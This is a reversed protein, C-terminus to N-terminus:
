VEGGGLPTALVPAIALTGNPHESSIHTPAEELSVVLGNREACTMGDLPSPDTDHRPNDLLESALVVGSEQYALVNARNYAVQAETRGVTLSRGKYTEEFLGELRAALEDMTVGEDLAAGVVRRVDERTTDAIGKIRGALDALVRRVNPNALDWAIGLQLQASANAFATEGALVYFRQLVKRLAEEEADWDIDDIDRAEAVLRDRDSRPMAVMDRETLADFRDASQAVAAVVRAGQQRWFARLMPAGRAGLRRIATRNAAGFAARSEVDLRYGRRGGVEVAVTARPSRAAGEEEDDGEGQDQGTGGPVLAAPAPPKGAEEAIAALDEPRTPTASFPLLLVNGAKGPLPPLGVEARADDLTALGAGLAATARQWRPTEDEQLAKIESTDFGFELRGSPDFEPLLARTFTGDLRAWLPAITGDYYHRVSSEYNSFTNRALGAMTGVLGPPVGFATCVHTEIADRVDPYLMEGLNLGLPVPEVGGLFAPKDWNRAGGYRQQWSALILDREAESIRPVIKEPGQPVVRLGLPPVGGRELLVNLFDTLQDDIALERKIATMPTRGTWGGWPDPRYTVLAVDEARLPWPDNGPVKYEWDPLAQPRPKVKVWPSVLPWLQVPRGADSRVKEVLCFGTAAAMSVVFYWFEAESMAPNPAGILARANRAAASGTDERPQGDVRRYVRLPAASTDRAIADLCAQVVALKYGRALQGDLDYAPWVARNRLGGPVLAGAADRREVGGALLQELPSKRAAKPKAGSKRGCAAAPPAKTGFDRVELFIRREHAPACEIDGRRPHAYEIVYWDTTVHPVLCSTCLRPAM